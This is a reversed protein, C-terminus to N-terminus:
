SAAGRARKGARQRARAFGALDVKPLVCKIAQAFDLSPTGFGGSLKQLYGYSTGLRAALAEREQKKMGLWIDRFDM